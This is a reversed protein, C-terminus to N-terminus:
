KRKQEIFNVLYRGHSILLIGIVIKVGIHIADIKIQSTTNRFYRKQEMYLFFERSLSPINDILILGGIIVISIRLVTSRHIKLQIQEEPFGSDLSLRNIIIDTKFILLWSILCYTLLFCFNGAFSLSFMSLTNDIFGNYFQILTNIMLNITDKLFFLGIVKLIIKFLSRITMHNQPVNNFKIFTRRTFVRPILCALLCIIIAAM